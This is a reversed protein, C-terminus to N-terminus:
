TGGESLFALLTSNFADATEEFPQHGSNPLIVLTSDPLAEALAEGQALPTITDQNGWIVLAPLTLTQLQATSLPVISQDRTLGLLGLDWGSTQFARWYVAYDEESLWTPDAYFGRLTREFTEQSFYARLGVRGWRWLSPVRLLGGVFAPPGGASVAADVLVLRTVREPYLLTFHAALNGGASHGIVTATPVQLRDLLQALLRAQNEVSYDFAAIKDSLGFGPRDVTIVRYNAEALSEVNYRWTETSGFLGHIFLLAPATPSGKDEYYVQVSQLTVFDGDPDTALQRPALGTDNLPIAFPLVALIIMVIVLVFLIRRITKM